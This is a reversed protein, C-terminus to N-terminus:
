PAPLVPTTKLPTQQAADLNIRRASNRGQQPREPRLGHKQCDRRGRTRPAAFDDIRQLRALGLHAGHGRVVFDDRALHGDVGQALKFNVLKEAAIRNLGLALEKRSGDLALRHHDGSRAAGDAALEAPLDNTQIRRTQKQGLARFKRDVVDIVLENFLRGLAGLDIDHRKQGVDGVFSAHALDHLGPLRLSDVMRRGVLVHRHDLM